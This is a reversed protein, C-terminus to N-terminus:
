MKFDQFAWSVFRMSKSKCVYPLYIYIYKTSRVASANKLTFFFTLDLLYGYSFTTNTQDYIYYKLTVYNRKNQLLLGTYRFLGMWSQLSRNDEEKTASIGGLMDCLFVLLSSSFSGLLLLPVHM